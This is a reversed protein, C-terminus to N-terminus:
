RASHRGWYLLAASEPEGAPAMGVWRPLPREVRAPATPRQKAIDGVGASIAAGEGSLVHGM